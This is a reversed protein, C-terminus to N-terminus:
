QKVNGEGKGVDEGGGPSKKLVRYKPLEKQGASTVLARSLSGDGDRRHDPQKPFNLTQQGTPQSTEAENRLKLRLVSKHICELFLM